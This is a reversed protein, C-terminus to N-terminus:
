FPFFRFSQHCNWTMGHIKTCNFRFKQIKLRPHSCTGRLPFNKFTDVSFTKIHDILTQTVGYQELEDDLLQQQQKKKKSSPRSTSDTIQSGEPDKLLTRRFWSSWNMATEVSSREEARSRSRNDFRSFFSNYHNEQVGSFNLYSNCISGVPKVSRTRNMSKSM